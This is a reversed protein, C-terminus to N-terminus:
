PCRYRGCQRVLSYNKRGRGPASSRAFPDLAVRRRSTRVRCEVDIPDGTRLSHEIVEGVHQQDDPHLANIFGRGRSEEESMGTIQQWRPSIMTAMGKDDLLWPIQPNLEVMHRYHDESERLAAEARKRATIDVLAVSIGVVEGAEDFAPLYSM